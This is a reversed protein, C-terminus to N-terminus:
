PYFIGDRLLIQREYWGYRKRAVLWEEPPAPEWRYWFGCALERAMRWIETPLNLEEGNPTCRTQRLIALWHSATDGPYVDLQQIQLSAGVLEGRARVVGPTANFRNRFGRRALRIQAELQGFMTRDKTVEEHDERTCFQEFIRPNPRNVLIAKKEDLAEAWQEAETHVRPLPLYHRLCWFAIHWYDLLSRTTMTGSLAVFNTAHNEHM